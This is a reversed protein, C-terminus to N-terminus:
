LNNVQMLVVPLVYEVDPDNRWEQIAKDFEEKSKVTIYYHGEKTPTEKINVLEVDQRKAFNEIVANSKLQVRVEDRSIVSDESADWLNETPANQDKIDPQSTSDNKINVKNEQKDEQNPVTPKCLQIGAKKLFSIDECKRQKLEFVSTFSILILIFIIPLITINLM